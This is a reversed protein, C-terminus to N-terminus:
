SCETSRASTEIMVRAVGAIVLLAQIAALAALWIWQGGEGAGYSHKGANLLFNVGYWAWIVGGFGLVAGIALSLDGHLGARRGHLAALIILLAVLAGVEKPDWGWFRGWSVDAWLGGLITGVALLLVTVQLVRYNLSSLIDCFAPPRREGEVVSYRGFAFFGLAVNGIMWALGASAYSTTITLVHIGLWFNSRLVPMLAQIDKPFPAYIAALAAFFSVVAGALAVGRWRYIKEMPEAAEVRGALVLSMPIAFLASPLIRPLYWVSIAAVFMSAAWVMSASLNPMSSGLDAHPLIAGLHLRYGSGGSAPQLVGMYYLGALLGALFLVLRVALALSRIGAQSSQPPGAVARDRRRIDEWLQVTVIQFGIGEAVASERRRSDEWSGPIATLGWVAKSTPGLLPMFTVWLTLLSMCMAVWVITEFMSTVPAWRTIYMRVSFGAAIFVVAVVMVAIGTWFLPKRLALFSLGLICAAALSACGSWFFPDIRNYLVEADTVLAHPYATKSLLGQDREVIPLQQRDPEVTEALARLDATFQQMAEAFHEARQSDGRDIYATSTERWAARIEQVDESPYGHLLGSSGQLLAHLSIWPRIESRYRDAELATAELAPVICISEGGASFSALPIQAAQLALDRTWRYLVLRNSRIEETNDEVLIEPDPLESEALERTKADLDSMLGRLRAAVHEISKTPKQDTQISSWQTVFEQMAQDTKEALQFLEQQLKDARLCPRLKQKLLRMAQENGEALRLNKAQVALVPHQSLFQTFREWSKQMGVFDSELWPNTGPRGPDYSLQIFLGLAEDLDRVKAQLASLEPRRKKKKAEEQVKEIEALIAVFKKSRVQNPSVHKLRSGDEGLLPVGLVETRLTADEAYLFPVDHWKQPEITWAYLLEAALFRRPQGENALRKIEDESIESMEAITKAGLKGLRPYVDGCIKKVQARAYSDLPMIRGDQLVPMRQWASWDLGGSLEARVTSAFILLGFVLAPIQRKM